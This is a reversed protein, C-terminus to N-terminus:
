RTNVTIIPEEYIRIGAISGIGAKVLKTVKGADIVKLDDPVASFDTVEWKWIMRQGVTGMETHVRKPAEPSVEILNVSESLEGTLQMESEAAETRLANIREQEKRIDEQAKQFGLIKGRTIQDAQEIPQMLFKFADNITKVQSQLPQLYERRKEELAKKVKSIISLDDTAPKIDEATTIVRQEAFEQLRLAETYFPMVETSAEPKIILLATTTENKAM